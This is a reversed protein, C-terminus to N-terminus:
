RHIRALYKQKYEQPTSGTANKFAKIFYTTDPYGCRGAIEYVKLNTNCVLEKALNMRCMVIYEHLGIHESQRFVRSIYTTSYGALDALTNVQIEGDLHGRIYDKLFLVISQTSSNRQEETEQRIQELLARIREEPPQQGDEARPLACSLHNGNIYQYLQGFFTMAFENRFPAAEAREPEALFALVPEAHRKVQEFMGEKLYGACIDVQRRLSHFRQVEEATLAKERQQALGKRAVAVGSEERMIDWAFMGRIQAQKEALNRVDVGEDAVVFFLRLGHQEEIWQRANRAIHFLPNVQEQGKDFAVFWILEERITLTEIWVPPQVLLAELIEQTALLSVLKDEMSIPKDGSAGRAAIIYVSVADLAAEELAEPSVESYGEALYLLLQKRYAPILEAYRQMANEMRAKLLRKQHITDLVTQVAAVIKDDSETKLLYHTAQQRIAEYAYSFDHYGTLFLVHIDKQLARAEEALQLGTMGPMQIDTMLIDCGGKEAKQLSEQASYAAEVLLREGFARALMKALTDAIVPEDDVVLMRYAKEAM